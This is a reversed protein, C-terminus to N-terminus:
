DVSIVSTVATMLTDIDFPKRVVAKVLGSNIEDTLQPGAATCVIIKDSRKQDNLFDIVEGGGVSPMMLDLIIVSFADERLVDIAKKGDGAIVSDFGERKLLAVLLYQTAADDEVILVRRRDSKETTM